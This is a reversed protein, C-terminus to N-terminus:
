PRGTGSRCATSAGSASRRGAMCSRWRRTSARRTSSSSARLTSSRNRREGCSASRLSSPAIRSPQACPKKKFTLGLRHVANWTAGTSLQVGHEFLLWAQAQWVDLLEAIAIESLALLAPHAPVVNPRPIQEVEDLPNDGGIQNELLAPAPPPDISPVVVPPPPAIENSAGSVFAGRDCTRASSTANMTTITSRGDSRKSRTRCNATQTENNGLHQHVARATSSCSVRWPLASKNPFFM